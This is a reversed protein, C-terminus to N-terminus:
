TNSSPLEPFQDFIWKLKTGSFYADLLLGTKNYFTNAKGLSDLETKLTQMGGEISPTREEKKLPFIIKTGIFWGLIMLIMAGPFAAIMWDSFFIDSGIAGAILSAALLNAGSGTLFASAGMNIQFLNQLIINLM